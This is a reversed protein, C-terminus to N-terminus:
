GPNLQGERQSSVRRWVVTCSWLMKRTRNDAQGQGLAEREPLISLGKRPPPFSITLPKKELM